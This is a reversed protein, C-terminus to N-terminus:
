KHCLNETMRKQNDYKYNYQMYNVLMNDINKYVTQGVMVGNVEENNYVLNDHNGAMANIGCVMLAALVIFKLTKMEKDGIKKNELM